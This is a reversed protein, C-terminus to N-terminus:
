QIICTTDPSSRAFIIPALLHASAHGHSALSGLKSFLDYAVLYYDSRERKRRDHGRKKM